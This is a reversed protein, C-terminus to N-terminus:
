WDARGVPERARSCAGKYIKRVEFGGPEQRSTWEFIEHERTHTVQAAMLDFYAAGLGSNLDDLWARLGMRRGPFGRMNQTLFNGTSLGAVTPRYTRRENGPGGLKHVQIRSSGDAERTTAVFDVQAGLPAGEGWPFRDQATPGLQRPVTVTNVYLVPKDLLIRLM